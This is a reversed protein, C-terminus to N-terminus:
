KPDQIERGAAKAWAEVSKRTWVRGGALTVEPAPFTPDENTMQYVRQRTVGLMAAIEVAGVLHHTVIRM